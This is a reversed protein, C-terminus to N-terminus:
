SSWGYQHDDKPLNDLDQRRDLVYVDIRVAMRDSIRGRAVWQIFLEGMALERYQRGRKSFLARGRCSAM